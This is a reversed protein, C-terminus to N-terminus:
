KEEYLLREITNELWMMCAHAMDKQEEDFSKLNRKFRADSLYESFNYEIFGQIADTYEKREYEVNAQDMHECWTDVMKNEQANNATVVTIPYKLYGMDTLKIISDDLMPYFAILGKIRLQFDMLISAAGIQLYSGGSFGVMVVNGTQLNYSSANKMFYQTVDIIEQQQYPPKQQALKKYNISAVCCKCDNRLTDCFSDTMDADGNILAGGHAVVVLGVPKESDYRYLNVEVDPFQERTVLVREGILKEKKLSQKVPKKNKMFLYQVIWLVILIGVFNIITNM